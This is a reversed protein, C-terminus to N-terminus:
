VLPEEDPGPEERRPRLERSLMTSLSTKVRVPDAKMHTVTYGIVAKVRVPDLGEKAEQEKKANCKKGFLSKGKLEEARPCIQWSQRPLGTNSQGATATRGHCWKRHRGLDAIRNHASPSHDCYDCRIREEADDVACVVMYQKCDCQLENCRGRLVGCIDKHKVPM